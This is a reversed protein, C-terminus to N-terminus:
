SNNKAETMTPLGEGKAMQGKTLYPYCIRVSSYMIAKQTHM